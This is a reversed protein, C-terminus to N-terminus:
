GWRSRVASCRPWGSALWAPPWRVPTTRRAWHRAVAATTGYALFVCLGVVTQVVAGAVALSALPATGLHGVVVADTLLFAPESVLAAFAPVALRVIERREAAAARSGGTCRGRM